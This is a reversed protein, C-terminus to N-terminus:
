VHFCLIEKYKGDNILRQENEKLYDFAQEKTMIQSSLNGNLVDIGIRTIFWSYTKGGTTKYVFNVDGLSNGKEDQFGTIIDTILGIVDM